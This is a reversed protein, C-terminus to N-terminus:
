EYLALALVSAYNSLMQAGYIAKIQNMCYQFAQENGFGKEEDDVLGRTSIVDM